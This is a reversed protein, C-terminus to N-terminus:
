LLLIALKAKQIKNWILQVIMLYNHEILLRKFYTVMCITFYHTYKLLLSM